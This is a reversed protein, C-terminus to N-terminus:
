SADCIEEHEGAPWGNNDLLRSGGNHKSLKMFYRELATEIENLNPTGNTVGIVVEERELYDSVTIRRGNGLVLRVAGLGAEEFEHLIRTARKATTQVDTLSVTAKNTSFSSALGSLTKAFYSRSDKESPDVRRTLSATVKSVGLSNKIIQELEGSAVNSFELTESNSDHAKLIQNLLRRLPEIGGSGRVSEVILARGKLLIRYSDIYENPSIEDQVSKALVIKRAGRAVTGQAYRRGKAYFGLELMLGASAKRLKWSEGNVFLCLDGQEIHRDLPPYHRRDISSAVSGLADLVMSEVPVDDVVQAGRHGHLRIM